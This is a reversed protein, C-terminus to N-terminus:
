RQPSVDPKQQGPSLPMLASSVSAGQHRFRTFAEAKARVKLPHRTDTGFFFSSCFWDFSRRNNGNTVQL